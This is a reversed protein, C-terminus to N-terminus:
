QIDHCLDCDQKIVRGDATKHQDDHCRFCGPADTHGLNNEHTGWTVNMGPFVNRGYLRQAAQVLQDIEGGHAPVLSAYNQGYFARLRQGIDREASPRDAYAVKLVEVAQRRAFPL